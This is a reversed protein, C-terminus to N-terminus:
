QQGRIEESIKKLDSLLDAQVYDVKETIETGMSSVDRILERQWGGFLMSLDLGDNIAQQARDRSIGLLASVASINEEDQM